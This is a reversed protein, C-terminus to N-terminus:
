VLNGLFFRKTQLMQTTIAAIFSKGFYAELALKNAWPLHRWHLLYDMVLLVSTWEITGCCAIRDGNGNFFVQRPMTVDLMGM